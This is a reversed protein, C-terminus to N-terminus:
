EYSLINFQEDVEIVSISNIQELIQKSLHKYYHESWVVSKKADILTLEIAREIDKQTYEFEDFGIPELSIVPIGELKPQSQALINFCENIYSNEHEGFIIPKAYRVSWVNKGVMSHIGKLPNNLDPWYIITDDSMVFRPQYIKDEQKLITNKNITKM